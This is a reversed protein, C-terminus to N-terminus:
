APRARRHRLAQSRRDPRTPRTVRGGRNSLTASVTSPLQSVISRRTMFAQQYTRARRPRRLRSQERTRPAVPRLAQRCPPRLVPGASRVPRGRETGTQSVASPWPILRCGGARGMGVPGRTTPWRVAATVPQRTRTVRTTPMTAIACRPATVRHLQTVPGTHTPRARHSRGRGVGDLRATAARGRGLDARCTVLRTRGHPIPLGQPDRRSAAGNRAVRPGVTPSAIPWGRSPATTGTAANGTGERSIGPSPKMDSRRGIERVRTTTPTVM